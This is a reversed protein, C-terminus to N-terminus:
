HHRWFRRIGHRSQGKGAPREHQLARSPLRDGMRERGRGPHPIGADAAPAAIGDVIRHHEFLKLAGSPVELVVDRSPMRHAPRPHRDVRQPRLLLGRDVRPLRGSPSAHDHGGARALGFHRQRDHGRRGRARQDDRGHAVQHVLPVAPDQLPQAVIRPDDAVVDKADPRHRDGGVVAGADMRLPEAVLEAQQNEVLAVM